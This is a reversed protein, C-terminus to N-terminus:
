GGNRGEEGDYNLGPQEEAPLPHLWSARLCRRIYADAPDVLALQGRALGPLHITARVLMMRSPIDRPAQEGGPAGGGLNEPESM